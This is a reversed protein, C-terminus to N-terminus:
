VEVSSFLLLSILPLFERAIAIIASLIVGDIASDFDHLLPRCCVISRLSRQRHSRCLGVFGSLLPRVSELDYLLVQSSGYPATVLILFKTLFADHRDGHHLLRQWRM